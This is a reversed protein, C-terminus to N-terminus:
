AAARGEQHTRLPCEDRHATHDDILALVRAKGVASRDHGCRCKSTATPMAGRPASIHLWAIPHRGHGRQPDPRVAIPVGEAVGKLDGVATEAMPPTAAQPGNTHPHGELPPHPQTNM